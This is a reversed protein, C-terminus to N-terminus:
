RRRRRLERAPDLLIVLLRGAERDRVEEGAERILRLIGVHLVHKTIM